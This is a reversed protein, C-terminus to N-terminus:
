EVNGPENVLCDSQGLKHLKLSTAYVPVCCYSVLCRLCVHRKSKMWERLCHRWDARERLFSLNPVAIMCAWFPTTYYPTVDCEICSLDNQLGVDCRLRPWTSTPPPAICVFFSCMVFYTLSVMRLVLPPRDAWTVRSCSNCLSHRGPARNVFFRVIHWIITTFDDCIQRLDIM